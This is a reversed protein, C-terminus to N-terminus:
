SGRSFVRGQLTVSYTTGSRAIDFSDISLLYANAKIEIDQLFAIIQDTSGSVSLTFGDAGYSGPPAPASNGEFNFNLGVGDSQGRSMLWPQFGILEDHTPLLKEMATTYIAAKPADNKLSALIGVISAQRTVLDKDSIIKDAQTTIDGSYYYLGWTAAGVAVLIIGFSLLLQKRVGKM